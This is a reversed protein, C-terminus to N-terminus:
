PTVGAVAQDVLKRAMEAVRRNEEDYDVFTQRKPTFSGTAAPRAIGQHRGAPSFAKRCWNRWTAEWDLKAAQAGPKAIWYDRFVEAQRTIEANEAFCNTRAWQRWDDPLQWDSSLRQGRQRPQKQAALAEYLEVPDDGRSPPLPTVQEISPETLPEKTAARNRSPHGCGQAALTPPLNRSDGEQLNRSPADTRPPRLNRSAGGQQKHKGDSYDGVPLTYVNSSLGGRSSLRTDKSLLGSDALRKISRDVTDLSCMALEALKRRSPFCQHSEDAFNGIAILILKDVPQETKQELAWGMAKGSM